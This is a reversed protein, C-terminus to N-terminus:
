RPLAEIAPEENGPNQLLLEARELRLQSREQPDDVDDAIAGLRETLEAVQGTRRLLFLLPQWLERSRPEQEHLARFLRM